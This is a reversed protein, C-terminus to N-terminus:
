SVCTPVQTLIGVIWMKKEWAKWKCVVFAKEHVLNTGSHYPQPKDYKSKLIWM